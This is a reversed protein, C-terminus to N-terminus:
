GKAIVRLAYARFDAKNGTQTSHKIGVAPMPNPQPGVAYEAEFHFSKPNHFPWSTKKFVFVLQGRSVRVGKTILYAAGPVRKWSTGGDITYEYWQEAVLEGAVRPNACILSPHKTSHDDQNNRQGSRQADSTAAYASVCGPLMPDYPRTAVM